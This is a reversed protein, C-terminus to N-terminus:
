IITDKLSFAPDYQMGIIKKKLSGAGEYLITKLWYGLIMDTNDPYPKLKNDNMWGALLDM